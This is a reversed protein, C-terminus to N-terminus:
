KVEDGLLSAAMQFFLESLGEQGLIVLLVGARMANLRDEGPSIMCKQLTVRLLDEKTIEESM